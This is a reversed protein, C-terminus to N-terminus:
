IPNNCFTPDESDDFLVELVGLDIDGDVTFVDVSKFCAISNGTGSEIYLGSIELEYDGEDLDPLTQVVTPESCLPLETCIDAVDQTGNLLLPVAICQGGGSLVLNTGQDQVGEGGDCNVGGPDGYDVGFDVSGLAAFAFNKTGLDTIEGDFIDEDVPVSQGLSVDTGEELINVVVTYTGAALFDTTGIGPECSFIDEVGTATGSLTSLVSVGGAGADACSIEQTGATLVWSVRFQGGDDEDTTIICGTAQALGGLLLAGLVLKRM